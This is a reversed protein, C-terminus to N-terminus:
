LLILDTEKPALEGSLDEISFKKGDFSITYLDFPVARRLPAGKLKVSLEVDPPVTTGMDIMYLGTQYAPVDASLPYAKKQAVAELFLQAEVDKWVLIKLTSKGAFVQTKKLGRELAKAKSDDKTKRAELIMRALRVASHLRAWLRPDSPGPEGQSSAVKRELRLAEDIKGMGAAAAALRLMAMPNEGATEVLTKFQRYAADHWGHRLFLNGLQERASPDDPNFEVLESCSRQAEEELGKEAQLDCMIRLVSPGALGDRRLRYAVALAEEIEGADLLTQALLSRGAPDDPYQELLERIKKLRAEDTKMAALGRRVASWNVGDSFYLNYVMETDLSRRLIRRRLYRAFGPYGSFATLLGRVDEPTGVRTELMDLLVRRDRWKDLECRRGAEFFIRAIQDPGSARSLRSSWLIRRQQLPRKSADSCVEKKFPSKQVSTEYPNGTAIQVVPASTTKSISEKVKDDSDRGGPGGSGKGYGTGTGGGGGHGITNLNDLGITGEGTGGGGRGTGSLGLGGYGFGEGNGEGAQGGKLSGLIGDIQAQDVARERAMAPDPSGSPGRIGYQNDSKTADRRGMRGEEGKHRKGKGGQEEDRRDKSLWEPLEEAKTEVSEKGDEPGLSFCGTLSLPFGLAGVTLDALEVGDDGANRRTWGRNRSRREIGQEEYAADSELVLFSTFPTMLAYNLGLSIITGRSELLGEGMLRELYLRGWMGPIYGYEEGEEESVEYKREFPKGELRGTVKIEDPLAHHTRALIIMEQGESIKGSIMSFAQDLGAGADIQLNTITPTKVSGAFRLAEQVTQDPVDIRFAKGGGVRALRELLSYNADDGVAITFLRARSDGMSRRLREALEDHTTEGVTARGDGIYVVAPQESDHVLGLATNFMAGLDTAGASVIEALSEIAKSVEEERAPALGKQPYITRPKLDAAIVAFRDTSSMARLVAEVADARVQRDSEDGGASTDLVVVVDGPVEKIKEWDVEPSYRIMVYDAEEEGTEFRMVKLPDVDKTRKLELLFDSRPIYGSRRMSILSRDEEIRADQLTAIEYDEGEDGLDVELSFEQIEVEEDGGMPYVYRYVDDDLPLLETYSLVVRREGVAPIPFIRARFTRGDVWELLAPDFARQVAEEYAAAAQKRETMEGDVLQGNVELAFREVAAEQPVTFWYWGELPTSSPNFFRQDVTTHALGDRIFIKVKQSVIQLEQPAKGPRQRDIGYIRGTGKGGSGSDLMKDAMGGTWDDWFAVPEVTPTAGAKSVARQGSQVEVRGGKSAFVALGRAVYITVSDGDVRLDFGAGSATVTVDGVAFRGLGDGEGTVDAWLEGKSMRVGGDVLEVDTGGKLFARTGTSLRILARSGEGVKLESDKKLMVGTILREKEGDGVLWVDGAILEVRSELPSVADPPPPDGCGSVLYAAILGLVHIRKM